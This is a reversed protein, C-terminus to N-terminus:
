KRAAPESPVYRVNFAAMFSDVKDEIRQQRKDLADFKTQIETAAGAVLALITLVTAVITLITSANAPKSSTM